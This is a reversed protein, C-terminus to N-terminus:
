QQVEATDPGLREGPGLTYILLKNEKLVPVLVRHRKADYDLQAPTPIGGAFRQVDSGMLHYIANGGWSTVLLSGDPLRLLGDLQPEPLRAFPERYGEPTLRYLDHARPGFPAVLLGDGFPLLGDPRELDARRALISASGGRIRFVAGPVKTAADGLDSVYLTGASDAAFDNLMYSEPVPVEGAPSGSARDFYRVTNIDAVVLRGDHFIMGKPGHLTAAGAGDIWRLDLITGDPAIRSIFGNDDKATLKGNINSVLYVDAQEDWLVTEPGRLQGAAVTMPTDPPIAPLFGDIPSDGPLQVEDPLGAGLPSAEDPSSSEAGISPDAQGDGGCGTLAVSLLAALM